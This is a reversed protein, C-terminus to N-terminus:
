DRKRAGRVAAEGLESPSASGIRGAAKRAESSQMRAVMEDFEARLRSLPSATESAGRELDSERVLVLRDTARGHRTIRLRKGHAVEDLTRGFHQKFETASIDEYGNTATDNM